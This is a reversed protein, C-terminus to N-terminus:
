SSTGTLYTQIMGADAAEPAADLYRRFAVAAQEHRGQARWLLGLSRHAAPPAQPTALAAVLDAEAADEAGGALRRAEGLFYRLDGRAPRSASQRRLLAITEDYQARQLEDELLSWVIPQLFTQYREDAVEGGSEDGAWRGLLEVREDIGPHSAFLVSRRAPDGGPGAKLEDRLHQWLLAAQRTEYGANRMLVLGIRDAEREHDRSYAAAGGAAALQGALGIIGFPAMLTMLASRSRADRLRALSHRQLYHGLEHGLVAALQAENDVRLLLGTWVQMMGNPAMTANFQPTRVLYVRADQCHDGALRCVLGALYDRVAAERVLLPSRRVRVEQRDMMAWLGGEEDELAPRELRSPVTWPAEAAAGQALAGASFFGACHACALGLWRRRTPAAPREGVAAKM